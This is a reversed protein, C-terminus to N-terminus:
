MTSKSTFFLNMFTESDKIELASAIAEMEDANPRRKGNIIDSAKKRNWGIANAFTSIDRFKGFIAGRLNVQM